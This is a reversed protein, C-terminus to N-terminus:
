KLEIDVEYNIITEFSKVFDTELISTLIHTKFELHHNLIIHGIEHFLTFFIREKQRNKNYFIVFNDLEPAYVSFGEKSIEYFKSSNENYAVLLWGNDKIIQFPDLPYELNNQSNLFESIKEYIYNHRIEKIFIM